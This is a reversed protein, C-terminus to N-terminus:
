QNVEVSGSIRYGDETLALLPLSVKEGAKIKSCLAFAKLTDIQGKQDARRLQASLLASRLNEGENQRLIDAADCCDAVALYTRMQGSWQSLLIESINNLDKGIFSSHIVVLSGHTLTLPYEGQLGAQSLAERLDKAQIQMLKSKVTFGGEKVPEAIELGFVYKGDYGPDISIGAIDSVATIEQVDSRLAVALLMVGIAIYKFWRKKLMM